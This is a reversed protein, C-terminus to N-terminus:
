RWPDILEKKTGVEELFTVYDERMQALIGPHQAKIDHQQTPDHSLDFLLDETSRQDSKYAKIKEITAKPRAPKYSKSVGDVAKDGGAIPIPKGSLVGAWQDKVITTCADGSGGGIIAPSSVAFSRCADTKGQVVPAFSKGHM